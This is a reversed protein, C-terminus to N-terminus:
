DGCGVAFWANGQANTQGIACDGGPDRGPGQALRLCCDAVGARIVDGEYQLPVEDGVRNGLSAEGRLLLRRLWRLGCSGGHAKIRGRPNSIPLTPIANAIWRVPRCDAGSSLLPLLSAMSFYVRYPQPVRQM